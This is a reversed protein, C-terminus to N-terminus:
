GPLLNVRYVDHFQADRDNLGVLLETPFKHSTEVIEARIKKLPTLDKTDNNSLDVRYVHFDEDGDSDQQYLIHQSTYAWSYSRIGRKTDKTVPKAADPKDAPGVWVNLVGNVPALYSLQKGDPSLKPSAKDPNGFLLKRPILGTKADAPTPQPQPKADDALTLAAALSWGVVGLTGRVLPSQTRLKM